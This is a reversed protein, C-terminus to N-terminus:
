IDIKNYFRRTAFDALGMGSCNGHSKDSLDLIVISQCIPAETMRPHTFRKIVNPDMGAGSIEKGIEDVVLVDFNKFLIQPMNKKAYQLLEPERIMFDESKICEIKATEDYANEVIGLGGIINSHALAYTGIEEIRPGLNIIHTTHCIDAGHQKGLGIVIMKMLGSEIKYRFSTHPKIRHVVFTADAEFANKDMTVKLGSDTYGLTATEMSSLIPVGMAEETIGMVALVGRQGEATAGGHSGMAPVLFPKCGHAQFIKIIEKYILAYNRIQRSGATLAVRYGPRVRELVGSSEIQRQIEGPIDKVVPRDFHQCIKVMKPLNIMSTLDELIMKEEQKAHYDLCVSM